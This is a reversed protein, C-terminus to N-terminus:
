SATAAETKKGHLWALIPPLVFLAGLFSFILVMGAIFGFRFIMPMSSMSIIFFAGATTITATLLAKGVNMIVIDIAENTNKGNAMEERFREIIHVSFDIGLGVIMASIMVTFLDFQWGVLYLLLFEWSISLAVTLVSLFGYIPSRMIISVALFCLIMAAITTMIQTDMMNGMIDSMIVLAGASRYVVDGDENYFGEIEEVVNEIDSDSLVNAEVYLISLKNYYKSMPNFVLYRGIVPQTDPDMVLTQAIDRAQEKNAPLQGGNAQILVDTYTSVSYPSSIIPDGDINTLDISRIKNELEYVEAMVEPSYVDGEILIFIMNSMTNGFIESIEMSVQSTELDDPAMDEWNIATGVQTSAGLSVLTILAVVGLLPKKHNIGAIVVRELFLSVGGGLVAFKSADRQSKRDRITMLAPLLTVVLVFAFFIGVMALFGFHRMPVLESILFSSFGIVTTLASVFVATGTNGVCARIGEYVDKGKRREERYRFMIHIAYNICIGLLLPMLAVLAMTFPIGTYGMVGLLWVMAIAITLYPFLTDSIKRFILFLVILIFIVAGSALFQNDSNMAGMLEHSASHDGTIGATLGNDSESFESVKEMLHVINESVGGEEYNGEVQVSILAYQMDPSVTRGIFQPSESAADAALAQQVATPTTDNLVSTIIGASAMYDLYSNVSLVYGEFQPDELISLELDQIAKMGELSTVDGRILVSEYSQSGYVDNLIKTARLAENDEPLYSEMDVDQEILPIGTAFLATVILIVAIVTYPRAECLNALSKLPNKM